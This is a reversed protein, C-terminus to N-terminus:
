PKVIRAAAPRPWGCVEIGREITTDIWRQSPKNGGRIVHPPPPFADCAGRITVPATQCATLLFMAALAILSRSKM